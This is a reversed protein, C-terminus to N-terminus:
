NSFDLLIFFEESSDINLFISLYKSQLNMISIHVTHVMKTM